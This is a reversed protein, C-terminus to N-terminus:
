LASALTRPGRDTTVLLRSRRGIAKPTGFRVDESALCRVQPHGAAHEIAAAAQREAPGCVVLTTLGFEDAARLALSVCYETPWHKAEGFAGGTSLLMVRDGPPLALRRWVGDAAAENAPTTTRELRRSAASFGLTAILRLYAY